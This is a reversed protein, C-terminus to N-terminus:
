FQFYIFSGGVDGFLFVLLAILPSLILLLSLRLAPRANLFARARYTYQFFNFSYALICLSIATDWEPMPLGREWQFIRALIGTTTSLDPSNFFVASFAFITLVYVIRVAQFPRSAPLLTRQRLLRELVLFLGIYIGWLLMPWTAGHWIGGLGLTILLNIITRSEGLRSGGLPIYIYDRLWTSLTIHWRQWLESISRSLFPGAFNEPIEYGLLKAMGRAMDTYGSFDCYIRMMFAPLIIILATADYSAPDLWVRTTILGLRDAILVKKVIGMLLYLSGNIIRDKTLYPRDIQDMFDSARMIPGAIFQPFFLIFLFFKTASTPETISSRYSDVVYAIMQFTYFSIAIPLVITLNYDEEWNTKLAALYPLGLIEGATHALLYFYKFFGLVGLDLGLIATLLLRSKHRLLQISALYNISVLGLFLLLFPISYWAYFLLSAVIILYQKGRQGLHWYVLYVCLFLVLFIASNFLM